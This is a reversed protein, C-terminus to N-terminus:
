WPLNLHYPKDKDSVIASTGAEMKHKEEPVGM